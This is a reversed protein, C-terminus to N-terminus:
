KKFIPDTQNNIQQHLRRASTKPPDLSLLIKSYTTSSTQTKIPTPKTNPLLIRPLISGEITPNISPTHGADTLEYVAIEVSKSRLNHKPAPKADSQLKHIYFNPKTSMLEPIKLRKHIKQISLEKTKLEDLIKVLAGEKEAETISFASTKITKTETNFLSPPGLVSSNPSVRASPLMSRSGKTLSRSSSYISNTRASQLHILSLKKKLIKSPQSREPSYSQSIVISNERKIASTTGHQSLGVMTNAKLLVTGGEGRHSPEEFGTISSMIVPSQLQDISVSRGLIKPKSPDARGKLHSFDRAITEKKDFLRIEEVSSPNVELKLPDRERIVNEIEGDIHLRASIKNKLSLAQSDDVKKERKM